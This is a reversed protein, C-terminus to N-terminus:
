KKENLIINNIRLGSELEVSIAYFDRATENIQVQAAGSDGITYSYLLIFEVM